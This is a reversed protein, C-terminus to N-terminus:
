PIVEARSLESRALEPRTDELVDRMQGAPLTTPESIVLWHTHSSLFLGHYNATLVTWCNTTTAVDTQVIFGYKDIEYERTLGKTDGGECSIAQRGRRRLHHNGRAIQGGEASKPPANKLVGAIREQGHGEAMPRHDQRLNSRQASVGRRDGRQRYRGWRRGREQRSICITSDAM